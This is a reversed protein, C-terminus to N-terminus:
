GISLLQSINLSRFAQKEVDFYKVQAPNQKATSGKSDYQYNGNRLTGIADRHSGDAKTFSFYAIGDRLMSVLKFRGWAAKLAESFSNFLGGKYFSWANAMITSLNSKPAESPQVENDSSAEGTAVETPETPLNDFYAKFYRNVFEMDTTVESFVAKLEMPSLKDLESKLAKDERCGADWKRQDSKMEWFFPFENIRDALDTTTQTNTM